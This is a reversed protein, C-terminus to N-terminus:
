LVGKRIQFSCKPAGSSACEVEHCFLKTEYHRAYIEALIGRLMNCSRDGDNVVEICGEVKAQERDLEASRVWGEEVLLDAAATLYVGGRSEARQAIGRGLVQGARFFLGNAALNMVSQYIEKIEKLEHQSFKVNRDDPSMNVWGSRFEPRRSIFTLAGTHVNLIV